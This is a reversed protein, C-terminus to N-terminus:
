KASEKSNIGVGTMPSADDNGGTTGTAMSDDAKPTEVTLTPRDHNAARPAAPKGTGLTLTANKLKSM